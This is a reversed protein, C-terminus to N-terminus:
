FQKYVDNKVKLIMDLNEKYFKEIAQVKKEPLWSRQIHSNIKAVDPHQELFSIVDHLNLVGDFAVHRYIHNLLEYDESYDLTLRYDKRLSKDAELHGVKFVDPKTLYEPWFETHIDQKYMSIAKFAKSKIIYSAAGLPLGKVTIYDFGEQKAKDILRESYHISFLPNDATIALIYDLSFLEAATLLRHLVDEESGCFYHINENYAIKVLPLDQSNTSTCLIIEDIGKVRKAREIIREIVTRGNLDKLIKFPYRSSKLRATILFGIKMQSM